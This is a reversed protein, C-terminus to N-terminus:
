TLLLDFKFVGQIYVIQSFYVVLSVEYPPAVGLGQLMNMVNVFM